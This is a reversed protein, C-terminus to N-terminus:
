PRKVQLQLSRAHVAHHWALSDLDDPRNAVDVQHDPGKATQPELGVRRPQCGRDLPAGAPPVGRRQLILGSRSASLALGTTAQTSLRDSCQMRAEILTPVLQPDVWGRDALKRHLLTLTPLLLALPVPVRVLGMQAPTLRV